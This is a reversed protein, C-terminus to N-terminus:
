RPCRVGFRAPVGRREVPRVRGDFRVALAVGFAQQKQGPCPHQPCAALRAGGDPGNGLPRVCQGDLAVGVQDGATGLFQHGLV